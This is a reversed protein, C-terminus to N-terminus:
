QHHTSRRSPEPYCGGNGGHPVACVASDAAARKWKRRVPPLWSM